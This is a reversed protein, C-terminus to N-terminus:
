KDSFVISRMMLDWLPLYYPVRTESPSYSSGVIHFQIQVLTRGQVFMCIVSHTDHKSGDKKKQGLSYYLIGVPENGIITTNTRIFTAGDPLHEKLGAPSLIEEIRQPTVTRDAPLEKTLILVEELGKGSDSAFKQITDPREGETAKWSKPYAMTFVVGKAKAHGRTSFKEIAGAVFEASPLPPTLGLLPQAAIM